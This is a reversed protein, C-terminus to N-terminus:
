RCKEPWQGLRVVFPCPSLESTRALHEAEVKTKTASRPFGQGWTTRVMSECVPFPRQVCSIHNPCGTMQSGSTVPALRVRRGVISPIPSDFCATRPLCIKQRRRISSPLPPQPIRRVQNRGTRRSPRSGSCHSSASVPVSVSVQDGSIPHPRIQPCLPPPLVIVQVLLSCLRHGPLDFLVPAEMLAQPGNQLFDFLPPQEHVSAVVQEFQEAGQGSEGALNPVFGSSPVAPLPM